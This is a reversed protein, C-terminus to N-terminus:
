LWSVIDSNEESIEKLLLGIESYEDKLTIVLTDIARTLPMMMWNYIYKRKREEPSELLLSETTGEIYQSYKESIFTDFDVCVVTWGELGRSSEYQLVRVADNYISYTDRNVSSTGDWVMIGNEEFQSKQKFFSNGYEKKVLSYPVLYLMDYAINGAKKLKDMEDICVSILNDSKTIVVKGGLMNNNSLIKGGLIDFKKTFANLFSILNEKQRLCYKLKINNRERVMSWDCIDINRVFQLGGDAVIIKGKEFM